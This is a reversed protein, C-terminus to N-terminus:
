PPRGAKENARLLQNNGDKPPGYYREVQPVQITADKTALFTTELNTLPKVMIDPTTIVQKDNEMIYDGDSDIHRLSGDPQVVVRNSTDECGGHLAWARAWGQASFAWLVTDPGLDLVLEVLNQCRAIPQGQIEFPHNINSCSEKIRERAEGALNGEREHQTANMCKQRCKSESIVAFLSSPVNYLVIMQMDMDSAKPPDFKLPTVGADEESCPRDDGSGVSFTAIVRLGHWADFKATYLVPLSSDFPPRFRAECILRDPSGAPADTGLSLTGTRPDTYLLHFGDSLPVARYHDAIGSPAILSPNVFQMGKEKFEDLTSGRRLLTQSPRDINENEFADELAAADDSDEDARRKVYFSYWISFPILPLICASQIFAKGLAIQGAMVLEFVLLGIIVRYCIIRWAGGTAHQPQDMAYLLMYKFTFFGLVFYIIGFILIIFGYNLVSYITCLNFVLLSTPLFFGYQFVPPKKLELADRPTKSFWKLFPYLFVSGAELIRFPMLGIGQLMIFCIYFIGLQVVDEAIAKPVKSTDKAFQQLASWWGLGSKSIAFVFFTNFFTFFYNKSIVSLEVDGQSIMGQHNSLFDYLYPVAVNLLSVVLAPLGNSALSYILAHERLWRSLAPAAQKIACPTLLGALFATPTIFVLTVITIFITISWSKLRRIGRPAYTNRWILDSPAPTLKTLLRGPRPDIRAQIAMQCSAVSDMTVIAMDTPTYSKKRAETVQADLRRLREEYYDIADVNRSRLGFTGYRINVKPRGEDGSDWPQQESELLRGNEGAAEDDAENQTGNPPGAHGRRRQSGNDKRKQRQNKLFTAWAGELCRLATDRADMLDDLKKWDRCIMVKDVTGIELKEILNKIAEESRLDEPIGTLRFTRDTVTSQSGLYDQRFKIVRHTELNLYYITLAVFFYTFFVYAWMWTKAWSLDEEGDKDKLVDSYGSRSVTIQDSAYFADLNTPKGRGLPSELGEYIKTIPLIIVTALLAMVSFLRIAMKFFSLFVFADLGASALVQEETIRYLTPIWGFTTNPLAPLGLQHDLRRKRAAYLSPWRPRLFCFLFFASVGIALSLVFQVELNKGVNPNVASDGSTCKEKSKGEVEMMFMELSM